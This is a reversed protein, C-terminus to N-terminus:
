KKTTLVEYQQTMRYSSIQVMFDMTVVVLILLSTGGIYVQINSFYTFVEPILCVLTIYIAGWFTLKLVVQELYYATKEGPRISPIFAGSKKLNDAMEKPSFVLATYFFCFFVVLISFLLMYSLTGHQFLSLFRTILRSNFSSAFIPPIVGSMNLKLPIHTSSNGYNLNQGRAYNVPIKRLASEFFVIAVILALISLVILLSKVVDGRSIAEVIQIASVPFTSVIGATILLSIGNGIGRETIQEGLWMLFLTGGVLCSIASIYFEIRDIVVVGQQIVVSAAFLSQVTALIVTGIRTYKTIAKRGVDGEKKLEKLKPIVEVALQMIISASIYPMIGIAFISFRELAGGSFMNLLGLIGSGSSNSYSRALGAADVGPVPVHM